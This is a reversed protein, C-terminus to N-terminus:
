VYVYVYISPFSKSLFPLNNFVNFWLDQKYVYKAPHYICKSYKQDVVHVNGSIINNYENWSFFHFNINTIIQIKHFLKNHLIYPLFSVVYVLVCLFVYWFYSRRTYRLNMLCKFETFNYSHFFFIMQLRMMIM